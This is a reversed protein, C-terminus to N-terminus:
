AKATRALETGIRRVADVLVHLDSRLTRHNTIACRIAFRGRLVTSSPVATGEEQLRLLLERNLTNLRDESWGPVVYRFCVVNLPVPALLAMDPSTEILGALYRAQEVNQLALRGFKEVGHELFSMWVKFSRFGRSLEPGLQSFDVSGAAPGRELPALYSAISAFSAEQHASRSRILICGADYPVHLWKHLDFALSDAREMGNLLPQLSPALAAIAGFAGDVHLWLDEAACLDALTDLPDIAGTNVTGANAIVCVPQLGAQRDAVLSARLADVNMRFDQDVPIKRLAARGLGLLAVAKIVSSHTQESCYMTLQRPFAHLGAQPVEGASDRAITLGMLNAVSGGTVLLGSADAPFGMLQKCWDIVQTEVLLAAQQGLSANVNMTATIMEALVGGASGSGNVWGWFRPHPNGWSYPVVLEQARRYAAEAGFGARPVPQQIAAKVDAPIPQWVPRDRLTELRTFMDDLIQHGLARLTTWDAPDLTEEV